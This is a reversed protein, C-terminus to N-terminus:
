RFCLQGGAQTLDLYILLEMIMGQYGWNSAHRKALPLAGECVLGGRAILWGKGMKASEMSGISANGKREFLGATSMVVNQGWPLIKGKEASAEVEKALL